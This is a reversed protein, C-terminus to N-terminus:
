PKQRRARRRPARRLALVVRKASPAARFTRPIRPRSDRPAEDPPSSLFPGALDVVGASSTSGGTLAERGGSSGRREGSRSRDELVPLDRASRRREHPRVRAVADA